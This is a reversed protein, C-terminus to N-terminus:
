KFSVKYVKGQSFDTVYLNGQPDIELGTPTGVGSNVIISQQGTTTIKGVRGENRVTYFINGQADVVIGSPFYIPSKNIKTVGGQPTIKYIDAYDGAYVNGSIDTAVDVVDFLKSGGITSVVGEPTIKRVRGNESDAVYINGDNDVAVGLPRNFQAQSAPGDVYGPEGTGAVTSVMGNSIKRIRNSGEEGLYISNNKGIAIGWCYTFKASDKPGDLYGEEGTGAYYKDVEGGPSISGIGHENHCVYLTGSGDRAIGYLGGLFDGALPTITVNNNNNNNNNDDDKSCAPSFLFFIGIIAAWQILPKM